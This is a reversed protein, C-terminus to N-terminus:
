SFRMVRFPDVLADVSRPLKFLSVMQVDERNQYWHGLLLLIAQLFEDPLVATSAHGAVFRVTVAAMQQRTSPWTVNPAPRVRGPIASIDVQYNAVDWVQSAGATDVYSISSVSMAPSRPLVIPDRGCPFWDLTLDFTQSLLVFGTVNELHRRAAFLYRAITADDEPHDVRLHKKAEALSVPESDPGSVRVVGYM